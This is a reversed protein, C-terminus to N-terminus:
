RAEAAPPHEKIFDDLVQNFRDPEEFFPAHASQEFVVLKAGPIAHAVYDAAALPANQDHRGVCVLTPLSITKLMDRWDVVGHDDLMRAGALPPTLMASRVMQEAEEGSPAVLLLREIVGRVVGEHDAMIQRQFESPDITFGWEWDPRRQMSPTIGILVLRGLRHPGFQEWYALAVSSSRSWAVLTVDELDLLDLLQRLDQAGRGLRFGREVKESQGQARPDFTIIHHDSALEAQHRWWTADMAWGAAFVM